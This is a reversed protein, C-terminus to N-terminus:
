CYVDVIDKADEFDDCVHVVHNRARLRGIIFRQRTSLEGDPAKFEIFFMSGCPSFFEVDPWGTEAGPGMYNRKVMYGKRKAYAIVAGQLKSEASM